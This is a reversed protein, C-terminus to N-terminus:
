ARPPTPPTSTSRSRGTTTRRRAGRRQAQRDHDPRDQRDQVHGVPDGRHQRGQRGLPVRDHLTGDDSVHVSRQLADVDRCGGAPVRHLRRGLRRRQRDRSRSRSTPSKYWGGSGDPSAPDLTDTTQPPTTDGASGGGCDDGPTQPNASSPVVNFADFQVTDNASATTSPSCASASAARSTSTSRSRSRRASRRSRRATRRRGPRSRSPRRRRPRLAGLRLRRHADARGLEAVARDGAAAHGRRRQLDAGAGGVQGAPQRGHEPRHRGQVAADDQPLPEPQPQQDAGARGGRRRRQHQRARGEGDGGVLGLARGAAAGARDRHRRVPRGPADAADPPRRRRDARLRDGPQALSWKPDVTTGNFQDSQPSCGPACTARRTRRPGATCARVLRVVGHRRRLRRAARRRRRAARGALTAGHGPQGILTWTPATTAPSSRRSRPGTTAPACWCTPRAARQRAGAHHEARDAPQGLRESPSSTSSSRPQGSNAQIAM